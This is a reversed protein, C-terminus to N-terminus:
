IPQLLGLPKRTSSKNRQCDPCSKVYREVDKRLDKWLYTSLLGPLTKDKGMHGKVPIVHHDHLVKNKTPGKPMCLKGSKFLLGNRLEFPAEPQKQHSSFEPDLTYETRVKDVFEQPFCLTSLSRLPLPKTKQLVRQLLLHDSKETNPACHGQRSLADPVTNHKGRVVEFRFPYQNLMELWRVQRDSLKHQTELYKLSEHDNKVVFNQGYLYARWHSIAAVISLLERERIPYRQEHVNLTRSFFAVPRSSGNEEQELVAGVADASADTSLCIPLGPDFNRLVPASSVIKKLLEFAQAQAEGWSFPVNGTLSTLPRAVHSINVIFRRYYNVLGLFSQVDVKSKPTPWKQISGIKSQEM